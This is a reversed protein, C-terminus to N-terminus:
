TTMEDFDHHTMDPYRIMPEFEDDPGVGLLRISEAATAGSAFDIEAGNHLFRWWILAAEKESAHRSLDYVPAKKLEAIISNKNQQIFRRQTDTLKGAPSVALQDGDVTLTFGADIIRQAANM